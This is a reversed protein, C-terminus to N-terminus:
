RHRLLRPVGLGGGAHARSFCPTVRSVRARTSVTAVIAVLITVSPASAASATSANSKVSSSYRVGAHLVLRPRALSSSSSSSNSSRPQQQLREAHLPPLALVVRQTCLQRLGRMTAPDGAVKVSARSLDPEACRRLACAWRPQVARPFQCAAPYTIM